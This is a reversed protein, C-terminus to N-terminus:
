IGSVLKDKGGAVDRFIELDDRRDIFYSIMCIIDVLGLAKMYKQYLSVSLVKILVDATNKVTAIYKLVM